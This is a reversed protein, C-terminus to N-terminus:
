GPLPYRDGLSEMYPDFDEPIPSGDVVAEYRDLYYHWGPGISSADYPEALRHIFVLETTDGKATLEVSLPWAGDPSPFVLRLTTPEVCEVVEASQPTADDEAAMVVDIHGATPDGSWPGFWLATRSSDTLASWADDISTRLSRAFELRMGETDAVVHGIPTDIM